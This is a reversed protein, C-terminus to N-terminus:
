GNNDPRDPIVDGRELLLKVMGDHGSRAAWSLPTRGGDDPRDPSVDKRELLLKVVGYHGNETAWSLPTKGGADQEDPNVSKRRFLASMVQPIGLMRGISGPNIFSPGLFLRVVGEHGRRAAWSLATRGYPTERKDLRIHKQQSLLKVVEERGYKAAWMLPTLGVSDRENVDCGKTRILDIAAEAVGFYSVCHPSPPM